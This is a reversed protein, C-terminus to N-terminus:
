GASSERVQQDRISHDPAPLSLRGALAPERRRLETTLEALWAQAQEVQVLLTARPDDVGALVDVVPPMAVLRELAERLRRLGSEATEVERSPQQARQRELAIITRRESVLRTITVQAQVESLGNTARRVSEIVEPLFPKIQGAAYASIDPIGSIDAAAMIAGIVRGQDLLEYSRTRSLGFESLVYQDWSTYGLAQWARRRHAEFLLMCVQRTAGKIKETLERAGFEDLPHEDYHHLGVIVAPGGGNMYPEQENLVVNIADAIPMGPQVAPVHTRVRAAVQAPVALHDQEHADELEQLCRDLLRLRDRDSNRELGQV